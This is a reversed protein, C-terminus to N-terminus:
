KETVVLSLGITSLGWCQGLGRFLENFLSLLAKFTGVSEESPFFGVGIPLYIAAELYTLERPKGKSEKYVYNIAEHVRHM